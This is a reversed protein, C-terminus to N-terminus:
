RLSMGALLGILLLAVATVTLVLLRAPGLPQRHATRSLGGDRMWGDLGPMRCEDYLPPESGLVDGPRGGRWADGLLRWIADAEDGLTMRRAACLFAATERGVMRVLEPDHDDIDVVEADFLGCIIAHALRAFDTAATPDDVDGVVDRVDEPAANRPLVPAWHEGVMSDCDVLHIGDGAAAVLVNPAALDNVVVGRDHFWTVAAILHGFATRKVREDGALMDLSRPKGGTIFGTPALPVLLGVLRSGDYVMAQPWAAIGRLAARDAAPLNRGWRILRTLEAASASDQYRKFVVARGRYEVHEVTATGGDDITLAREALPRLEALAVAIPM